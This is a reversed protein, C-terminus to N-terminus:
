AFDEAIELNPLLPVVVFVDNWHRSIKFEQPVRPLTKLLLFDLVEIFVPMTIPETHRLQSGLDQLLPRLAGNEKVSIQDIRM